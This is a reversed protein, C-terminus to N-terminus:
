FTKNELPSWDLTGWFNKTPLSEDESIFFESGASTFEKKSLLGDNNTDISAFAADAEKHNLGLISFFLTFEQKQIFGDHNADVAQFFLPLPAELTDKLTPDKVLTKMAEIFAAESIAPEGHGLADQYKAWIQLVCLPLLFWSFPKFITGKNNLM